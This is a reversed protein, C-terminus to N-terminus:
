NLSGLFPDEGVLRTRTSGLHDPNVSSKSLRVLVRDICVVSVQEKEEPTEQAPRRCPAQKKVPRGQFGAFLCQPSTFM